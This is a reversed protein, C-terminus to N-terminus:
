LSSLIQTLEEAPLEDPQKGDPLDIIRVQLRHILRSAIEEAAKRGAEDGDLLITVRKFRAAIIQDQQQSMSIGMLAVVFPHLSQWVKMCDFFGEVLIVEQATVRHLNFLEASKHFGVPLKYRPESDDIARGAYAV